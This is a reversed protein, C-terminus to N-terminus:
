KHDLILPEPKSLEPRNEQHISHLVVVPAHVKPRDMDQQQQKLILKVKSDEALIFKILDLYQKSQGKRLSTLWAVFEEYNEGDHGVTSELVANRLLGLVKESNIKERIQGKFEVKKGIRRRKKWLSFTTGGMQVTAGTTTKREFPIVDVECQKDLNNFLKELANEPIGEANNAIHEYGNQFVEPYPCKRGDRLTETDRGCPETKDARITPYPFFRKKIKSVPDSVAEKKRKAQALQRQRLKSTEPIRSVESNRSAKRNRVERLEKCRALYKEHAKKQSLVKAQSLNNYNPMTGPMTGKTGLNTIPRIKKPTKNKVEPM